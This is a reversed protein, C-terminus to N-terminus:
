TKLFYQKRLADPIGLLILQANEIRQKTIKLVDSFESDVSEILMWDFNALVEALEETASDIKKAYEGLKTEFTQWFDEKVGATPIGESYTNGYQESLNRHFKEETMLERM